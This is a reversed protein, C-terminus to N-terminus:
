QKVEVAQGDRLDEPGKVLITDGDSV